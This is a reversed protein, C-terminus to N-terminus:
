LSRLTHLLAPRRRLETLAKSAIGVELIVGHRVKLVGRSAGNATLYWANGGV